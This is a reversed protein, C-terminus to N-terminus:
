SLISNIAELLSPMIAMLAIFFVMIIVCYLSTKLVSGDNARFSHEAYSRMDPSIYFKAEDFNISIVDSIGPNSQKNKKAERRQKEAEIYEEYTMKKIGKVSVVKKIVGSNKEILTKVSKNDSLGLEALTKGNDEGFAEARMLKKLLLSVNAQNKGIIFCAVCLGIFVFILLKNIEFNVGINPYDGLNLCIYDNYLKEFFSM